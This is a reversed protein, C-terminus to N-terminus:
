GYFPPGHEIYFFIIHMTPCNWKTDTQAISIAYPTISHFDNQVIPAWHRFFTGVVADAGVFFASKQNAIEAVNAEDAQVVIQTSFFGSVGYQFVHNLTAIGDLVDVDM